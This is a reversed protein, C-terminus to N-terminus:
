PIQSYQVFLSQSTFGVVLSLTRVPHKDPRKLESLLGSIDNAVSGIWPDHVCVVTNM